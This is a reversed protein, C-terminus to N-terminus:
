VAVPVVTLPAFMVTSGGSNVTFAPLLWFIVTTIM